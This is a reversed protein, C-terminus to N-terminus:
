RAKGLDLVGGYIIPVDAYVVVSSILLPVVIFIVNKMVKGGKRFQTYATSNFCYVIIIAFYYEINLLIKASNIFVAKRKVNVCNM